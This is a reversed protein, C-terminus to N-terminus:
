FGEEISNVIRSIYPKIDPPTTKTNLVNDCAVSLSPFIPIGEIYKISQEECAKKVNGSGFMKHIIGCNTCLLETMNEVMGFVPEKLKRAMSVAKLIDKISVVQPASVFLMGSPSRNCKMFEICSQVANSTGPPLDVVLYDLDWNTDRLTQLVYDSTKGGKWLVATNKKNMMLEVSVVQLGDTTISPTIGHIPDGKLNSDVHLITPVSPGYVDADYLGVKHGRQLLELAVLCSVTSKGTGGKGAGCLIARKFKGIM